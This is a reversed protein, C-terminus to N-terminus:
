KYVSYHLSRCLRFVICYPSTYECDNLYRCIYKVMFVILLSAFFSPEGQPQAKKTLVALKYIM